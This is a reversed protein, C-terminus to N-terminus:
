PTETEPTPATTNRRRYEEVLATGFGHRYGREFEDHRRWGAPVWHQWFGKGWALTYLVTLAMTGWQEALYTSAFWFPQGALGFLCAFRRVGADKSQTLAIAVVGTCAIGIQCLTKPSM